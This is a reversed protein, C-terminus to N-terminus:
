LRTYEEITEDGMRSESMSLKIDGPSALYKNFVTLLRIPNVDDFWYPLRM